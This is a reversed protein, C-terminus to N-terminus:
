VFELGSEVEMEKPYNLSALIKDFNLPKRKSLKGAAVLYNNTDSLTFHAIEITRLAKREAIMETPTKFSGDKLGVYLSDNKWENRVTTGLLMIKLYNDPINQGGIGNTIYTHLVDSYLKSTHNRFRKQLKAWDVQKGALLKLGAAYLMTVKALEERAIHALAYARAHYKNQLLLEAERILSTANAIAAAIGEDLQKLNLKNM